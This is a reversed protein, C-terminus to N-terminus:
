QCALFLNINKGKSSNIEFDSSDSRSGVCMASTSVSIGSNFHSCSIVRMRDRGNKILKSVECKWDQNEIPINVVDQSILIKKEALGNNMIGVTWQTASANLVFFSSLILILAKVAVGIQVNTAIISLSKFLM